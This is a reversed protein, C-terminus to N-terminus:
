CAAASRRAVRDAGPARGRAAAPHPHEEQGAAGRARRGRLRARRHGRHVGRRGARGDGRLGPPQGRHRRRLGVGPRVRPGPRPGRRRRRRGRHRVPQRAQHDRGGAADFDYAARRAADTDVYNNYSMEKGHLQEATALGGRWNRYLAAPQHPNEGYRLVASKDWTAGVFDPFVSGDEPVAYGSRSGRPWPSTTRRPTRSRRPPWSSASSSRSAAPPSRPACTTTRPRTLRRGRREPPEQGRRPGDVPRRHRDARRVRRADRGVGGDRPVPLPQRRRPRVARDRARGAPRRAVDLRLDALIGAHVRPHLTKVRGDLCEPFGTLEEVPTVPVGAAEITKATSGTSVISVGAAHLDRALDELGTKDYVSVLARRLPRVDSTPGPKTVVRRRLMTATRHDVDERALRGVWEVLM